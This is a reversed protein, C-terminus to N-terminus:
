EGNEDNINKKSTTEQETVSTNDENKNAKDIIEKIYQLYKLQLNNPADDFSIVKDSSIFKGLSDSIPAMYPVLNETIAGSKPDISFRILMVNTLNLELLNGIVFEGSVLKAIKIM